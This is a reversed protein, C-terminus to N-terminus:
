LRELVGILQADGDIVADAGLEAVAIGSFGFSVAAFPRGGGQSDWACRGTSISHSL